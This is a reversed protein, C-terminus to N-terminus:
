ASREAASRLRNSLQAIQLEVRKLERIITNKNLEMWYWVKMMGIAIWCFMFACAWAIMENVGEVQFFQVTALVALVVFAPITVFVLAVMWRTKGRFSDIVMEQIGQEGGLSEFLEAEEAGLTDRIMKDIDRM